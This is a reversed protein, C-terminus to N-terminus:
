VVPRDGRTTARVSSEGTGRLDFVAANLSARAFAALTSKYCGAPVGMAPVCLVVPARPLAQRETFLRFTTGDSARVTTGM